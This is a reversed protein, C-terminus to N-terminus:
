SRGTLGRGHARLANDVVQAREGAVLLGLNGPDTLAPPDEADVTDLDVTM